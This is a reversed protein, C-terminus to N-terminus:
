TYNLKQFFFFGSANPLPFSDFESSVVNVPMPNSYIPPARVVDKPREGFIDYSDSVDIMTLYARTLPSKCMFKFILPDIDRNSRLVSNRTTYKFINSNKFMYSKWKTYVFGSLMTQPARSLRNWLKIQLM